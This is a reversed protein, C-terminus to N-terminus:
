RAIEKVPERRVSAARKGEAVASLLIARLGPEDIRQIAERPDLWARERLAQEPWQDATETVTMLFVAVHCTGGYKEYFYSGVPDSRLVGVLGAEEWAEQLAIEAATKGPDILGKPIVWRRRSSSTILCVRGQRLPIAAAQPIWSLSEAM